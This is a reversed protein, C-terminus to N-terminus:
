LGWRATPPAAWCGSGWPGNLAMTAVQPADSWFPSQDDEQDAISQLKRLSRVNTKLKRRLGFTNNSTAVLQRLGQDIGATVLGVSMNAYPNDARCGQTLWIVAKVTELMSKVGTLSSESLHEFLPQDIDSLNLVTTTASVMAANVLDFSPVCEVRNYFRRSSRKVKQVVSATKLSKGGIILLTEGVPGAAVETLELYAVRTNRYGVDVDLEVVGGVALLGITEPPLLGISPSGAPLPRVDIILAIRVPGSNM